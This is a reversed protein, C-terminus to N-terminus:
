MFGEPFPFLCISLSLSGEWSILIPVKFRRPCVPDMEKENAQRKKSVKQRNWLHKGENIEENKRIRESAAVENYKNINNPYTGTVTTVGAIAVSRPKLRKEFCLLSLLDRTRNILKAAGSFVCLFLHCPHIFSMISADQSWNQFVAKELHYFNATWCYFSFFSWESSRGTCSEQLSDSMHGQRQSTSFTHNKQQLESRIIVWRHDTAQHQAKREKHKVGLRRRESM